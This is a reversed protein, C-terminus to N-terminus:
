VQLDALHKAMAFIQEQSASCFIELIEAPPRVYELALRGYSTADAREAAYFRPMPFSPPADAFLRYAEIEANHINALM